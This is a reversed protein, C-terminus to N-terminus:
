TSTWPVALFAGVGLALAGGIAYPLGARELAEAILPATPAAGPSAGM